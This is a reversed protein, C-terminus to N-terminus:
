RKLRSTPAFLSITPRKSEVGKQIHVTQGPQAIGYHVMWAATCKRVCRQSLDRPNLRGAPRSIDQITGNEAHSKRSQALRRNRLVMATGLTPHGGFPTEQQPVFIRAKAGHEKEVAPDRPFVFTTEQLNTERAIDQMESDSLGRMPLSPWLTARSGPLPSFM